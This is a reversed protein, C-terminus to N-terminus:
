KVNIYLKKLKGTYKDQKSSTQCDIEKGVSACVDFIYTGRPARNSPAIELGAIISEDSEILYPGKDWFIWDDANFNIQNNTKDYASNYEINIYFERRNEDINLLGVGVMTNDGKNIDVRNIPIAFLKGSSLINQIQTKTQQNLQLSAEQTGRFFTSIFYVASSFIVISLIFIVIFNMAIQIGKKNM